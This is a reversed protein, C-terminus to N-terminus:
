GFSGRNWIYVSGVALLLSFMYSDLDHIYTATTASVAINTAFIGAILCVTVKSEVRFLRVTLYVALGIVLVSAIVITSRGARSTFFKKVKESKM